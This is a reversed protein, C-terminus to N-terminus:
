INHLSPEFLLNQIPSVRLGSSTTICKCPLCQWWNHARDYLVIWRGTWSGSGQDRFSSIREVRTIMCVKNQHSGCNVTGEVDGIDYRLLSEPMRAIQEWRKSIPDLEFIGHNIPEFPGGQGGVKGVMLVRPGCGLLSREQGLGEPLINPIVSWAECQVDYALLIDWTFNRRSPDYENAWWYLLGECLAGSRYKLELGPPLSGTEKWTESRSDYVKTIRYAPTNVTGFGAIVIKYTQSVVDNILFILAYTRRRLVSPTNEISGTTPPLERWSKTIPNVILLNGEMDELENHCLLRGGARAVFELNQSHPVFSLPPLKQWVNLSPDYAYTASYKRWKRGQYQTVYVVPFYAGWRCSLQARTQLFYPCDLLSDWCKCVCRLQFLTPFPLRALVHNMLDPPFGDWSSGVPKEELLPYDDDSAWGEYMFDDPIFQGNHRQYSVILDAVEEAM